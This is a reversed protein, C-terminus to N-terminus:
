ILTIWYNVKLCVRYRKINRNKALLRLETISLRVNNYIYYKIHSKLRVCNRKKVCEYRRFYCLYFGLLAYNICM